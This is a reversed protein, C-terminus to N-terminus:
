TTSITRVKRRLRQGPAGVHIFFRSEVTAGLAMLYIVATAARSAQHPGRPRDVAPNLALALFLAIFIWALVHRAIWV